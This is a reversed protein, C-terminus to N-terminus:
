LCLVCGKLITKIYPISQELSDCLCDVLPLIDETPTLMDPVMVTQMGATHAARIGNFSDEYAICEQPAVGLRQAATLFVEPDPKGNRVDDGCVLCDFYRLTDSVELNLTATQRSTSTALAVGFGNDRFFGLLTYLGPKVPIGKTKVREVYLTRCRDAFVRYPFDGGYLSRYLLEVEKKRRGVTQKYIEFSYAYGNERMMESWTEFVITESDFMLGDMDLVAARLM